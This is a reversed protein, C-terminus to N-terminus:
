SYFLLVLNENVTYSDKNEKSLDLAVEEGENIALQIIKESTEAQSKTLAAIGMLTAFWIFTKTEFIPEQKLSDQIQCQLDKM